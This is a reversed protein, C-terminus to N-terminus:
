WRIRDNWSLIKFEANEEIIYFYFRGRRVVYITDSNKMGAPAYLEKLKDIPDPPRSEKINQQRRRFEPTDFNSKVVHGRCFDAIANLTATIEENLQKSTLIPWSTKDNLKTMYKDWIVGGEQSFKEEDGEYTDGSAALLWHFNSMAIYAREMSDFDINRSKLQEPKAFIDGSWIMNQMVIQVEAKRLNANNVYFERYVDAFDLTNYFRRIAKDTAAEALEQKNQTQSYTSTWSLLLLLFLFVRALSQM